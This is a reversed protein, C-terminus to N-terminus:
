LRGLGDQRIDRGSCDNLAEAALAHGLGSHPRRDLRTRVVAVLRQAGGELQRAQARVHRGQIGPRHGRRHLRIHPGTASSM